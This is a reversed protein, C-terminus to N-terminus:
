AAAAWADTPHARCGEGVEGLRERSRRIWEALVSLPLLDNFAIGAQDDRSWCVVGRASPLGMVSVVVEELPLRRNAIVKVGGQSVDRLSARYLKSGVRLMAPCTLEVRPLRPPNGDPGVNQLLLDVDITRDFQLGIECGESWTVIGSVHGGTKLEIRVRSGIRVPSTAKAMLGGASINRVLCLEKGAETELTGVRLLKTFRPAGRREREPTRRLDGNKLATTSM